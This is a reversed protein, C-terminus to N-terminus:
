PSASAMFTSNWTTQIKAYPSCVYVAPINSMSSDSNSNSASCGQPPTYSRQAASVLWAPSSASTPLDPGNPITSSSQSLSPMFTSQSATIHVSAPMSALALLTLAAFSAPLSALSFALSNYFKSDHTSHNSEIPRNSPTTVRDRLRSEIASEHGSWAFSSSLSSWLVKSERHARGYWGITCSSCSSGRFCSRRCHFKFRWQGTHTANQFLGQGAGGIAALVRRM